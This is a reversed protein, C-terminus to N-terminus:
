RRWDRDTPRPDRAPACRPIALAIPSSGSGGTGRWITSPSHSRRRPRRCQAAIREALEGRYFAEGKTGAIRELTRAMAPGRFVEGTHPARGGPLFDELFDPFDRSLATAACWRARWAGAIGPFGDHAHRIPPNSCTPLLCDGGLRASLQRGPTWRAPCPTVSDWGLHPMRTLLRCLAGSKWARPARGSGNLWHLQRGDWIIHSRMAAWGM